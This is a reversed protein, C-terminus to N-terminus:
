LSNRHVQSAVLQQGLERSFLSVDFRNLHPPIQNQNVKTIPPQSLIEEPSCDGYMNWRDLESQSAGYATTDTVAEYYQM